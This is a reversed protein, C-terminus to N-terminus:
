ASEKQQNYEYEDIRAELEEIRADIKAALKRFKNLIAKDMEYDRKALLAERETDDYKTRVTEGGSIDTDCRELAAGWHDGAGGLVGV